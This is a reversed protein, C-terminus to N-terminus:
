KDFRQSPFDNRDSILDNHHCITAIVQRIMIFISECCLYCATFPSSDLLLAFTPICYLVGYELPLTATFISGQASSRSSGAGFSLWPNYASSTTFSGSSAAAWLRKDEEDTLQLGQLIAGLLVARMPHSVDQVVESVVKMKLDNSLIGPLGIDVALAMRVMRSSLRQLSIYGTAEKIRNISLPSTKGSVMFSSKSSNIIQRTQAPHLTLTADYTDLSVIMRTVGPKGTVNKDCCHEM